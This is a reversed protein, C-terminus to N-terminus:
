YNLKVVNVKKVSNIVKPYAVYQTGAEVSKISLKETGLAYKEIVVPTNWQRTTGDLTVVTPYNNNDYDKYFVIPDGKSDIAMDFRCATQMTAHSAGGASPLPDGVQSWTQTDVDFKYVTPFWVSNTIADSGALLYVTKGDDSVAWEAGVINPQTAGSPLYECVLTWTFDNSSNYKYLRYKGGTGQLIYGCYVSGAAKFTNVVYNYGTVGAVVQNALWSTGDFYSASWGRKAVSGATASAMFNVIPNGDSDVGLVDTSATVTSAVGFPAGVTSWAGSTYKMVQSLKTDNVFYVFPVGNNDFALSASSYPVVSTFGQTGVSTWTSGNYQVMSGPKSDCNFYIYPTKSVPNIEMDYNNVNTTGETYAGLSEGTMTAFSVQSVDSVKVNVSSGDTKTVVMYETQAMAGYTMCFLVASLLLKKM